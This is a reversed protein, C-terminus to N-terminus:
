WMYFEVIERYDNLLAFSFDRMKFIIQSVVSLESLSHTDGYHEELLIAYTNQVYYVIFCKIPKNTM